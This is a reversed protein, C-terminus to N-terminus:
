LKVNCKLCVLSLSVAGIAHYKCSKFKFLLLLTKKISVFTFHYRLFTFVPQWMGIDAKSFNSQIGLQLVLLYLLMLIIWNSSFLALFKKPNHRTINQTTKNTVEKFKSINSISYNKLTFLLREYGTLSSVGQTLTGSKAHCRVKVLNAFLKKRCCRGLRWDCFIYIIRLILLKKSDLVNLSTCNRTRTLGM